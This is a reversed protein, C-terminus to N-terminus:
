QFHHIVAYLYTEKTFASIPPLRNKKLRAKDRPVLSDSPRSCRSIFSVRVSCWSACWRPSNIVHIYVYSCPQWTIEHCNLADAFLTYWASKEGEETCPFSALTYWQICPSNWSGNYIQFLSGPNSDLSGAREACCPSPSPPPLLRYISCVRDWQVRYHADLNHQLTKWMVKCTCWQQKLEYTSRAQLVM